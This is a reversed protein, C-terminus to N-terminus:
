HITSPIDRLPKVGPECIFLITDHEEEPRIESLHPNRESTPLLPTAPVGRIPRPDISIGAGTVIGIVQVGAGIKRERILSRTGGGFEGVLWTIRYFHSGVLELDPGFSRRRVHLCAYLFVFQLIFFLRLTELLAVLRDFDAM